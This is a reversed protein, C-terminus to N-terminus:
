KSKSLASEQELVKVAAIEQERIIMNKIANQASLSANQTYYDKLGVFELANKLDICRKLDEPTQYHSNIYELALSCCEIRRNQLVEHNRMFEALELTTHKHLSNIYSEYLVRIKSQEQDLIVLLMGQIIARPNVFICNDIPNLAQSITHIPKLDVLDSIFALIESPDNAYGLGNIFLNIQQESIKNKLRYINTGQKPDGGLGLNTFVLYDKIIAIAITNGACGGFLVLPNNEAYELLDRAANKNTPLNGSFKCTKYTFTFAEAIATFANATAPDTIELTYKNLHTGLIEISPGIFGYHSPTGNFYVMTDLVQGFNRIPPNFAEETQEFTQLYNLYKKTWAKDEPKTLDLIKKFANSDRQLISILAIELVIKDELFINEGKHILEYALTFDENAIAITLASHCYKDVADLSEVYNTLVQQPNERWFISYTLPTFMHRNKHLAVFDKAQQSIEHQPQSTPFAKSLVILLQVTLYRPLFRDHDPYAEVIATLSTM